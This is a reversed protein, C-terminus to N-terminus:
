NEISAQNLVIYGIFVPERNHLKYLGECISKVHYMFAQILVHRGSKMGNVIHCLGFLDIVTYSSIQDPDIVDSLGYAQPAPHLVTPTKL